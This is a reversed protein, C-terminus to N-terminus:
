MRVPNKSWSIQIDSAAVHIFSNWKEAYFRYLSIGEPLKPLLREIVSQERSEPAGSVGLAKGNPRFPYTPDPPDIFCFYLGTARLEAPSYEDENSHGPRGILIQLTMLLIGATYDLTMTVLKADHFGNPLTKEVEDFTM